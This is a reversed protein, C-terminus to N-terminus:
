VGPGETQAALLTHPGSYDRLGSGSASITLDLSSYPDDIVHAKQGKKREASLWTCGELKM